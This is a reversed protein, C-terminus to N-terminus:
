QPPPSHGGQMLQPEFQQVMGQQCMMDQKCTRKVVNRTMASQLAAKTHMSTQSGDNM